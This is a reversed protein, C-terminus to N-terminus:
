VFQHIDDHRDSYTNTSKKTKGKPIDWGMFTWCDCLRKM